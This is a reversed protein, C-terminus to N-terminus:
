LESLLLRYLCEDGIYILLLFNANTATESTNRFEDTHKVPFDAKGM